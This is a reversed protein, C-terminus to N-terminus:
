KIVKLPGRTMRRHDLEELQQFLQRCEMRFCRIDGKKRPDIQHAYYYFVTPGYGASLASLKTGLEVATPYYDAVALLGANIKEVQRKLDCFARYRQAIAKESVTLCQAWRKELEALSPQSKTADHIM